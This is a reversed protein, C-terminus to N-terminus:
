QKKNYFDLPNWSKDNGGKDGPNFETEGYLKRAVKNLDRMIDPHLRKKGGTLLNKVGPLEERILKNVNHVSQDFNQGGFDADAKLETEWKTHIEDVKTKNAEVHSDITARRKDILGQAQEKTLNHAKAIDRIDQVGAEEFGKLDLELPKDETVVTEKTEGKPDEKTTTAANGYGSLNEETTTQKSQDDTKPTENPTGAPTTNSQSTDGTNGQTQTTETSTTTTTTEAGYGSPSGDANASDMLIRHIRM